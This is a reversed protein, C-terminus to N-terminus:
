LKELLMRAGANGKPGDDAKKKGKTKEPKSGGAAELQKKGKKLAAMVQKRVDADVDESETLALVVFSSNSCAWELVNEKIIPWLTAAFGLQPEALKVTKTAFDFSGGLVLTKIM